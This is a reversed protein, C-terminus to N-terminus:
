KVRTVLEMGAKYMASSRQEGSITQRAVVSWGGPINGPKVWRYQTVPAVKVQAKKNPKSVETAGASSTEKGDHEREATAVSEKKAM